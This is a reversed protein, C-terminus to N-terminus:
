QAVSTAPAVVTGLILMKNSSQDTVSGFVFM